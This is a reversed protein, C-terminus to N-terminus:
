ARGIEIGGGALLLFVIVAAFAGMMYLEGFAFNIIGTIGYVMTYGFAILAYISGVTVGNVTQQLFYAIHKDLPWADPWNAPPALAELLDIAPLHLGRLLLMMQV